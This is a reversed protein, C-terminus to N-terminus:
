NLVAEQASMRVAVEAMDGCEDKCIIQYPAEILVQTAQRECNGCLGLACTVWDFAAQYASIVELHRHVTERAEATHLVDFISEWAVGIRAADQWSYCGVIRGVGIDGDSASVIVYAKESTEIVRFSVDPDEFFRESFELYWSLAELTQDIVQAHTLSM